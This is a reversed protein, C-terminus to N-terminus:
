EDSQAWAELDEASLAGATLRVDPYADAYWRRLQRLDQAPQLPTGEAWVVVDIRHVDRGVPLCVYGSLADDDCRAVLFASPHELAMRAQVIASARRMDDTPLRLQVAWRRCLAM